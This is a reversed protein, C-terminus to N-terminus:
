LLCPVGAFDLCSQFTVPYITFGATDPTKIALNSELLSPSDVRRGRGGPICM